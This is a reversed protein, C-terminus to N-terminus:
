EHAGIAVAGVWKQGILWRVRHSRDNIEASCTEDTIRGLRVAAPPTELGTGILKLVAEKATWVRLLVAADDADGIACRVARAESEESAIALMGSADPHEGVREIDIGVSRLRSWVCARYGVAASFSLWVPKGASRGVPPRARSASIELGGSATFQEALAERWYGASSGRFPRTGPPMVARIAFHAAGEFVPQWRGDSM